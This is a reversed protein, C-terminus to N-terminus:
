WPGNPTLDLRIEMNLEFRGYPNRAGLDAAHRRASGCAVRGAVLFM